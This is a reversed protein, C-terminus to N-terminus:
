PTPDRGEPSAFHGSARYTEMLVELRTKAAVNQTGDIRPLYVNLIYAFVKHAQKKYVTEFRHGAIKLFLELLVPTIRRPAMNLVHALWAWGYKMGHANGGLM